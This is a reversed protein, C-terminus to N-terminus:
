VTLCRLLINSPTSPAVDDDDETGAEEDDETGAEEDDETGAEEADETGAEEDDETGAEEALEADPDAAAIGAGDPVNLEIIVASFPLAVRVIVFKGILGM